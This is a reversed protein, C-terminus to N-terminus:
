GSCLLSVGCCLEVVDAFESDTRDFASFLPDLYHVAKEEIAAFEKDSSVTALAAIFRKMVSHFASRGILGDVSVQSLAVWVSDASCSSLGSYSVFRMFDRAVGSVISVTSDGADKHLIVLFSADSETSRDNTMTANAEELARVGSSVDEEGDGDGVDNLERLGSKRDPSSLYAWKSLDVLELWPISKFGGENYWDGFSQFDVSRRGCKSLASSSERIVQRAVNQATASVYALLKEGKNLANTRGVSPLSSSCALLM